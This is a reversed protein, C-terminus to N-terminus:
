LCRALAAKPDELGAPKKHRSAKAVALVEYVVTELLQKADSRRSNRRLDTKSLSLANLACNWVLKTWLEGALNESIRCPVGARNFIEAV